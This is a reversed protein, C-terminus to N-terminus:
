KTLMGIKYLKGDGCYVIVSGCDPSPLYEKIAAPLKVSPKMEGSRSVAFLNHTSSDILVSGNPTVLIPRAPFFSSGKDWLDYGSDDVLVSHIEKMSKGQHDINREYGFCMYKGSNSLVVRTKDLGSVKECLITHGKDTMLDITGEDGSRNSISRLFLMGSLYLAKIYQLSAQEEDLMWIKSGHPNACLVSSDQWTGLVLNGSQLANISVVAGPARWRRYRKRGNDVNLAYVYGEGTGIYFEVGDDSIYSDACWVAGKLDIKWYVKGNSGLITIESNATNKKSYLACFRGDPSICADSVSVIPTSYIKNASSTYLSYINKNITYFFNGNGSFGLSTLGKSAIQWVVSFRDPDTKSYIHKKHPMLSILWLVLGCIGILLIFYIINRKTRSHNLM